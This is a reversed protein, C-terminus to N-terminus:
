FLSLFRKKTEIYQKLHRTHSVGTHCLNCFVKGASWHFEELSTRWGNNIGNKLVVCFSSKSIFKEQVKPLKRKPNILESTTRKREKNAKIAPEFNGDIDNDDLLIVDNETEVTTDNQVILDNGDVFTTHSTASHESNGEKQIFSEVQNDVVVLPPANLLRKAVQVINQWRAVMTYDKNIESHILAKKAAELSSRTERLMINAMKIETQAVDLEKNLADCQRGVEM